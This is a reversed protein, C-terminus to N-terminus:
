PSVLRVEEIVFDARAGQQGLDVSVGFTVNDLARLDIPREFLTAGDLSVSGIGTRVDFALAIRSTTLTPDVAGAAPHLLEVAHQADHTWHGGAFPTPRGDAGELFGGQFIRRAVYAGDLSGVVLYVGAAHLRRVRVRAELRFSALLMPRSELAFGSLFSRAHTATTEVELGGGPLIHARADAQSSDPFRVSWRVPDIERGHFGDTFSEPQGGSPLTEDSFRALEVSMPGDGDGREVGVEIRVRAGAKWGIWSSVVPSGDLSGLAAGLQPSLRLALEHWDSGDGADEAHASSEEAVERRAGSDRGDGSLVARGDEGITFRLDRPSGGSEGILGVFVRAAGRSRYRVRIAVDTLRSESRLLRLSLCPGGASRAASGVRNGGAFRHDMAGTQELALDDRLADESSLFTARSDLDPTRRAVISAVHAYGVYALVALSLAILARSVIPLVPNKM